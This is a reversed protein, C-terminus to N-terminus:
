SLLTWGISNLRKTHLEPSKVRYKPGPTEIAKGKNRVLANACINNAKCFKYFTGHHHTIEGFPDKLIWTKAMPNGSGSSVISLKAKTENSAKIGTKIKSLHERFQKTRPKHIAGSAGEGGDTHNTLFGTGLDIRGLESIIFRELEFADDESLNKAVHEAIPKIGASLLSKIKTVKLTNAKLSGPTFHARIRYGSGKGIYFPKNTTPDILAYVYFM